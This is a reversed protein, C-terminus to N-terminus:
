SESAETLESAAETKKIKRLMVKNVWMAILIPLFYMAVLMLIPFLLTIVFYIMDGLTVYYSSDIQLVISIVAEVFNIVAIVLAIILVAGCFASKFNFPSAIENEQMAKKKCAVKIIIAIFMALAAHLIIAVISTLISLIIADLSLLYGSPLYNLYFFPISFIARTASIFLSHLILQPINKATRYACVGSAVLLIFLVPRQAFYIYTEHYGLAFNYFLYYALFEVFSLLAFIMVASFIHSKKQVNNETGTM